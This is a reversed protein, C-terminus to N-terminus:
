MTKINKLAVSIRKQDNLEGRLTKSAGNNHTNNAKGTVWLTAWDAESLVPELVVLALFFDDEVLLLLGLLLDVELALVVGAFFDVAAFDLLVEVTLGELAGLILLFATATAPAVFIAEIPATLDFTTNTWSKDLLATSYERLSSAARGIAEIVFSM